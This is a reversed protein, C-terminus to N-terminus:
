KRKVPGSDIALILLRRKVANIRALGFSQRAAGEFNLKSTPKSARETVRSETSQSRSLTESSDVAELRQTRQHFAGQINCVNHM